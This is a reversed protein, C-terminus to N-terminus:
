ELLIMGGLDNSCSRRCYNKLANVQESINGGTREKPVFPPKLDGQNLASTM